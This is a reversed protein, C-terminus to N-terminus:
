HLLIRDLIEDKLDKRTNYNLLHPFYSALMSVFAYLYVELADSVVSITLNNSYDVFLELADIWEHIPLLKGADDFHSSVLDTM